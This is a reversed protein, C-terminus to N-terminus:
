QLKPKWALHPTSDMSFFFIRATNPQEPATRTLISELIPCLAGLMKDYSPLFDQTLASIANKGQVKKEDVPHVTWVFQWNIGFNASCGVNAAFDSDTAGQWSLIRFFSAPPGGFYWNKKKKKCERCLLLDLFTGLKECEVVYAAACAIVDSHQCYVLTM